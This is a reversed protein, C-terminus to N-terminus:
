SLFRHIAEAAKKGAAIAEIAWGPGNVVDGGAFIGKLSTAGTPSDVRVTGDPKLDLGKLARRDPRQGIAAIITDAPIRFESGAIPLPRKRGSEDPEALQMRVLVLGSPKEGRRLIKVPAVLFNIKVGEHLAQDVEEPIAPMERRSRRYYLTVMEAGLRLASRAADLAVNGGGIVAVNKGVALPYGLNVRRLFEVGYFIGSRDEGPLRLKLSRHAGTAIFVAAYGLQRLNEAGGNLRFIHRTEMVVGLRQIREIEQRLGGRPLRFEPIGVALMGGLVPLAEWLTVPYGGLALDHAAALGAPGSGVVLVRSKKKRNKKPLPTRDGKEYEAIFRKLMRLPVPHDVAERLCAEECPHHCVFGCIMPLPNVKRIKELAESFKGRAILATYERADQHIPCAEQCPPSLNKERARVNKMKGRYLTARLSQPEQRYEAILEAPCGRLCVECHRCRDAQIVPIHTRGEVM